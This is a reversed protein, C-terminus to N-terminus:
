AMYVTVDTTDLEILFGLYPSMEGGSFLDGTFVPCVTASDTISTIGYSAPGLKLGNLGAGSFRAMVMSGSEMAAVIEAGTHSSTFSPMESEGGTGTVDVWMIGGGSGGGVKDKPVRAYAGDQEALLHTSDDPEVVPIDGLNKLTINDAM